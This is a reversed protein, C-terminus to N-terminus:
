KLRFIRVLRVACRRCLDKIERLTYHWRRSAWGTIPTVLSSSTDMFEITSDGYNTVALLGERVDIGHPFDFGEYEGVIDISGEKIEIVVVRDGYQDTIYIKGSDKDFCLADFACPKLFWRDILKYSSDELDFSFYLLGSAYAPMKGSSPSKIAFAAVMTSSDIFCFDKIQYPMELKSIVSCTKIDVFYIDNQNTSLCAIDSTYFRAGHCNGATIPLPIDKLYRLKSGELSYLSGSRDDFNSTLIKNNGDYDILDTITGHENYTTDITDIFRHSKQEPNCEILHMTEGVLHAAVVRSDDIFFVSTMTALREKGGVFYKAKDARNPEDIHISYNEL